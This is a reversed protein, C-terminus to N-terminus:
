GKTGGRCRAAKQKRRGKKRRGNDSKTKGRSFSHVFRGGACETTFTRWALNRWGRGYVARHCKQRKRERSRICSDAVPANQQLREGLGSGGDGAVRSAARNTPWTASITTFLDHGQSYDGMTTKCRTAPCDILIEKFRCAKHATALGHGQWLSHRILLAILRSHICSHAVQANQQLRDRSLCQSSPLTCPPGNQARPPTPAPNTLPSAFRSRPPLYSSFM